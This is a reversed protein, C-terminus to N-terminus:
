PQAEGRPPSITDAESAQRDERIQKRRGRRAMQEEVEDLLGHSQLWPRATEPRERLWKVGITRLVENRSEDQEITQAWDLANRVDRTALWKAHEPLALAIEPHNQNEALWASADAPASALWSRYTSGLANDGRDPRGRLWEMAMEGDSSAIQEATARILANKSPDPTHDEAFTIAREPNTRALLGAAARLGLFQVGRPLDPSIAEANKIAAEIGGRRYAAGVVDEAATMREQWDAARGKGTEYTAVFEWIAPDDTESWGQRLAGSAIIKLPSEPISEVAARAAAPDRRAWARVVAEVGQRRQVRPWAKTRRFSAEPDFEVWREALLELPYRWDGDDKMQQEFVRIVAELEEPRETSLSQILPVLATARELPNVLALAARVSAAPTDRDESTGCALGNLALLFVLLSTRVHSGLISRSPSPRGPRETNM